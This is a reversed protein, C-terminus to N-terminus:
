TWLCLLLAYPKPKHDVGKHHRLSVEMALLDREGENPNQVIWIRIDEYCLAKYKRRVEGFEDLETEDSPQEPLQVSDSVVDRNDERTLIKADETCYGSDSTDKDDHDVVDCEDDDPGDFADSDDDYDKETPKQTRKCKSTEDAEGLPDQSAKGKSAHTFEAPRGGTYANFLIITALDHRDDETPFVSEDRAWHQVLLLLLDDPGVVPKPKSTTDLSFEPKLVTNIYKIGNACLLCRLVNLFYPVKVVESADSGDVENGDNMRKFLMKFDRWYQNVSKRKGRKRKPALYTECIWRLFSMIRGKTCSQKMIAM